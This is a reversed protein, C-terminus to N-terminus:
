EYAKTWAGLRGKSLYYFISKFAAYNLVCFTYPLYGIGKKESTRQRERRSEALALGYFVIQAILTLIYFGRDLLQLNSLFIFIMCLPVLLRLLKHSILQFAVPSVIPNLLYPMNRFIQWNGALTRIKRVMEQRGTQSVEDYAQAKADFVARYGKQVISLPVYMDDALTNEPVPVFFQRRIAYIAGTAGLMSGIESEKKRLFKEYSWYAGMGQGISGSAARRFLLEGSVCGVDPDHFNEVLERISHDPFEQRADTFILITGHAERVLSNLVHPKGLNKVFRFFRVRSSDFHSVIADTEDRAGDSGVLIEIKSSPYDADLLNHLRSEIFKEENFASLIISIRPEFRGKNVPRRFFKALIWLAVPYGAYAYLVTLISLWFIIEM